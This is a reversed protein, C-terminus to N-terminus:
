NAATFRDILGATLYEHGLVLMHCECIGDGTGCEGCNENSRPPTHGHYFSLGQKCYPCNCENNKELAAMANPDGLDAMQQIHKPHSPTRSASRMTYTETARYPWSLIIGGLPPIALTIRVTVYLVHTSTPIRRLRRTTLLAPCVSYVTLMRISLHIYMSLTYITAIYMLYISLNAAVYVRGDSNM